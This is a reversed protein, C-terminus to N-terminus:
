IQPLLNGEDKDIDRLVALRSPLGVSLMDHPYPSCSVISSKSSKVTDSDTSPTSSSVANYDTLEPDPCPCSPPQSGVYTPALDVPVTLHPYPV